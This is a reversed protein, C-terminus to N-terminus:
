PTLAGAIRSYDDLLVRQDPARAPYMPGDIEQGPDDAGGWSPTAGVLSRWSRGGAIAAFQGRLVPDKAGRYLTDPRTVTSSRQLFRGRPARIIRGDVTLLLGPVGGAAAQNLRAVQDLAAASRAIVSAALKADASGAQAKRAIDAISAKVKSSLVVQKALAPAAKQINSRINVARQVVARAAPGATKNLITQAAAQGRAVESQAAKAVASIAAGARATTVARIGVGLAAAAKPSVFSLASSPSPLPVAKTVVATGADVLKGAAGKITGKGTAAKSLTHASIALAPNALQVIPNHAVKSVAKGVAKVVKSKTVSKVAKKLFSGFGGVQDHGQDLGLARLSAILKPVNVRVEIPLFHVCGSGDTTVVCCRTVVDNGERVMVTRLWVPTAGLASM